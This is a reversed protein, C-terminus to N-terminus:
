TKWKSLRAPAMSCFTIGLSPDFNEIAELKLGHSEVQGRLAALDEYSWYGEKASPLMNEDPIHIMIHSVGIQKAFALTDEKYTSPYFGLGMKM